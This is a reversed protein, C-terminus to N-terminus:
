RTTPSFSPWTPRCRTAASAARATSGPRSWRDQGRDGERAPGQGARRARRATGEILLVQAKGRAHTFGEAVNNIARQDGSDKDPIFEATFTYFNPETILQKLTFVNIGRQLEVPM